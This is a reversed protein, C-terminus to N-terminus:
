KEGWEYFFVMQPRIPNYFPGSSSVGGEVAILGFCYFYFPLGDKGYKIDSEIKGQIDEVLFDVLEACDEGEKSLNHTNGRGYEQSRVFQALPGKLWLKNFGHKYYPVRLFSPNKAHLGSRINSYELKPVVRRILPISVRKFQGIYTGAVDNYPSGENWLRQNELALVVTPKQDEPLENLLGTGEWNKMLYAAWEEDSAQPDPRVNTQKKVEELNKKTLFGPLTESPDVKKEEPLSSALLPLGVGLAGAKGIFERRKM